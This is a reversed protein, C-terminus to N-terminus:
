LKSKSSGNSYEVGLIPAHLVKEHTPRSCLNEQIMKFQTSPIAFGVNQSMEIIAVNIGIV